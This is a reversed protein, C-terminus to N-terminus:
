NRENDESGKLGLSARTGDFPGPPVRAPWQGPNPNASAAKKADRKEKAVRLKEAHGAPDAAIKALRKEKAVVNRTQVKVLYELRKSLIENFDEKRIIESETGEWLGLHNCTSYNCNCSGQNTNGHDELPYFFDLNLSGRADFSYRKEVMIVDTDWPYRIEGKLYMVMGVSRYRLEYGGQAANVVNTIRVDHIPAPPPALTIIKTADKM